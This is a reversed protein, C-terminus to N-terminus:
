LGAPAGSDRSVALAPEQARACIEEAACSDDPWDATDLRFRQAYEDPSVNEGALRRLRYEEFAIERLAAPDQFLPAFAAQYDELRRRQGSQWAYELDVRILEPLVAGYLPHEPPPLFAAPDAQDNGARAAEYAAVYDDLEQPTGIVTAPLRAPCKM